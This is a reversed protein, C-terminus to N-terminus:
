TGTKLLAAVQSENSENNEGAKAPDLFLLIFRRFMTADFTRGVNDRMLNFATLTDRSEAYSRKTTLASFADALTIIRVVPDLRTAVAGKPYGSGLLNEHHSEAGLVILPNLGKHRRLIEAGYEPHKKMVAWESENLPGKKNIIAPDVLCKGIDHLFGALGLDALEQVQTIGMERGLAITYAAVGVSHAYTYADHGTLEILNLFAHKQLGIYRVCEQTFSRAQAINQPNGPDSFLRDVVDVAYDTLVAAKERPTLSPSRVVDGLSTSMKNFYRERDIKRIYLFSEQGRWRALMRADFNLNQPKILFFDGGAKVYVDFDAILGSRLSETLIPVYDDSHGEFIPREPLSGM